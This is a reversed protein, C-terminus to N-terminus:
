MVVHGYLYTVSDYMCLFHPRTYTCRCWTVSSFGPRIATKLELLLVSFLDALDPVILDQVLEFEQLVFKLRAANNKLNAERNMMDTVLDPIEIGMPRMCKAERMVQLLASDFNVYLNGDEPHLVLVSANMSLRASQVAKQWAKEWLVEYAVFAQATQNYKKIIARSDRSIMLADHQRFKTMPVEIMKLLHRVWV